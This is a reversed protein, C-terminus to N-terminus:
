VRVAALSESRSVEDAFQSLPMVDFRRRFDDLLQETFARKREGNKGFGPFAALEPVEDAALFDLPHLLLSPPVRSIKCLYLAFRFYARALVPSYEALFHLYTFHIPVRFVPMTTVPIELLDSSALKWRHPKQPRFGESFRGFQDRRKKQEEETLNASRFYAARALPGLFTPFISADYLYDRKELERLLAESVSFGPGRFSRTRVGTASLIASEALDLESAIEEDSKCHMWPEHLYSHNGLDHGSEVLSRLPPINEAVEADRGVVFVTLTLGLRRATALVSPVVEPLYTPFTEWADDGNARMYAWKNDLDLSISAPQRAMENKGAMM